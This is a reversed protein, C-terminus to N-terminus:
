ALYVTAIVLMYVVENKTFPLSASTILNLGSIITFTFKFSTKDTLTAWFFRSAGNMVGAVSGTATLMADSFGLELGYLKYCNSIMMGLTCSALVISMLFIFAISKIGTFSLNIAYNCKKVNKILHSLLLHLLQIDM